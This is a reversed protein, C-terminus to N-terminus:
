NVVQRAFLSPKVPTEVQLQSTGAAPRLDAYLTFEGDFCSLFYAFVLFVLM